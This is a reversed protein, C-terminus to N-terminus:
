KNEENKDDEMLDDIMSMANAYAMIKGSIVNYSHIDNDIIKLQHKLDDTVLQISRKLLKLENTSSKLKLGLDYKKALDFINIENM